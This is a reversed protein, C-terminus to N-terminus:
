ARSLIPNAAIRSQGRLFLTFKRFNLATVKLAMCAEKAKFGMPMHDIDLCNHLFSPITEIGKRFRGVNKYEESGLNAETFIRSQANPSIM